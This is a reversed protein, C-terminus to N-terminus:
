VASLQPSWLISQETEKLEVQGVYRQNLKMGPRLYPVAFLTASSANSSKFIHEATTITKDEAQWGSDHWSGVYVNGNTRQQFIYDTIGFASGLKRLANVGDDSHYFCPIKRSAYDADPLEITIGAREIEDCVDRLTPHRRAIPLAFSLAGVLERCTIFWRGARQQKSEIVGYFYPVLKDQYGIHFEVLGSPLTDEAVVFVARGPSRLSLVVNHHAPTVVEGGITLLTQLKM